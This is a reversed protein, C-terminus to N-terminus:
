VVSDKIFKWIQLNSWTWDWFFDTEFIIWWIKGFIKWPQPDVHLMIGEPLWVQCHFIWWTHSKGAIFRWTYNPSTWNGCNIVLPYVMPNQPIGLFKWVGNAWRSSASSSKRELNRTIVWRGIASSRLKSPEDSQGDFFGQWFFGPDEIWYMLEWGGAGNKTM